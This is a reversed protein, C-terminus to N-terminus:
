ASVPRPRGSTLRQLLRKLASRGFHVAALALGPLTRLNFAAIGWRERRHSMWDQKYPDDGSLFDVETVRDLDIVHRMLHATLLSGVSYRIFRQDYALKYISAVGDGVMWVQAAAPEGDIWAIGLRLWGERACTRILEPMFQPHAEPPKWSARYVTEYAAIAEDLKDGGTIIEMRLRNAIGLQQGKRKLTNRLRPPLTAAYADYSRGNVQLYWNGFCHYPQIAMGAALFASLTSAFLPSDRDMPFISVIDCREAGSAIDKALALLSDCPNTDGAVLPSFVPSYYNAAAALRRVPFFRNAPAPRSLPLLARTEDGAESQLAYVHLSAHELGYRVLTQFWPLSLFIGAGAAARQFLAASSAPLSDFDEYVAIRAMAPM